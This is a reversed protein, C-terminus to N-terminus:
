NDLVGYSVIGSGSTGSKQLAARRM